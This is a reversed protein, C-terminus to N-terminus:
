ASEVGNEFPRRSEVEVRLHELADAAPCRSEVDPVRGIHGARLGGRVCLVLQAM